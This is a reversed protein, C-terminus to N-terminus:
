YININGFRLPFSFIRKLDVIAFSVDIVGRITTKGAM